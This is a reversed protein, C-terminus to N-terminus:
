LDELNVRERKPLYKYFTPKSGTVQKFQRSLHAVSSYNMKYSIETLNFNGYIILEKIKEVKHLIIFHEITIGKTKSFIEAMKQYGKKMKKSLFASFNIKPFEDSYHVMEIVINIIKEIMIIKKDYILNLRSKNLAVKLKQRTTKTIPEALQVEGLEMSKYVIGLKELESNVMMKCRLSVMNQIFISRGKLTKAQNNRLHQPKSKYAVFDPEAVAVHILNDKSPLKPTSNFDTDLLQPAHRVLQTPTRTNPM